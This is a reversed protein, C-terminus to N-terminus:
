TQPFTIPHTPVLPFRYMETFITDFRTDIAYTFRNYEGMEGGDDGVKRSWKEDRIRGGRSRLSRALEVREM